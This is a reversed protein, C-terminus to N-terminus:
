VSKSKHYEVTPNHWYTWYRFLVVNGSCREEYWQRLMYTHYSRCWEGRNSFKKRAPHFWGTRECVHLFVLAVYLYLQWVVGRCSAPCWVVWVDSVMQSLRIILNLIPNSWHFYIGVCTKYIYIYIYICLTNYIYYEM